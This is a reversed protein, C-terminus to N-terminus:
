KQLDICLYKSFVDKFYKNFFEIYSSSEILETFDADWNKYDELKELKLNIDEGFLFYVEDKYEDFSYHQQMKELLEKYFKETKEQPTLQSNGSEDVLCIRKAITLTVIDAFRMKIKKYLKWRKDFLDQKRKRENTQWQQYAIYAMFIAVLFPLFAGIAKILYEYTKALENLFIFDACLGQLLNM